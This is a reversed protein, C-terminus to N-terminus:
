YHAPLYILSFKYLPSRGLIFFSAFVSAYHVKMFYVICRYTYYVMSFAYHYVLYVLFHFFELCHTIIIKQIINVNTCSNLNQYSNKFIHMIFHLILIYKVSAPSSLYNPNQIRGTSSELQPRPYDHARGKIKEKQLIPGM